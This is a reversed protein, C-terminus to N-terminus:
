CSFAPWCRCCGRQTDVQLLYLPVPLKRVVRPAYRCHAIIHIITEIKEVIYPTDDKISKQVEKLLKLELIDEKREDNWSNLGYAGLIGATIVIVELLYEPWKQALTTLIRKM